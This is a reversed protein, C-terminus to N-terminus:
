IPAGSGQVKLLDAMDTNVRESLDVGLHGELRSLRGLANVTVKTNADIKGEIRNIDRCLFPKLGTDNDYLYQRVRKDIFGIVGISAGIVTAILGIQLIDASM